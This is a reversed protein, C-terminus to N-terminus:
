NRSRPASGARLDSRLTAVREALVTVAARSELDRAVTLGVGVIM